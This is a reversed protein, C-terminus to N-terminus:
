LEIAGLNYLAKKKRKALLLAQYAGGLRCNVYGIVVDAKEVMWRNRYTIAYRLPAREIPPYIIQDFRGYESARDGQWAYPIVCGVQVGPHEKRYQDCIRYAFRDFGGHEGLLFFPERGDAIKDLLAFAEDRVSPTETFDAHGFFAINM